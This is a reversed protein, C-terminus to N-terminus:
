IGEKKELVYIEDHWHKKGGEWVPQDPFNAGGAIILVDNHIGSYSGNLGIENPIATEESWELIDKNEQSYIISSLCLFIFIVSLYKFM